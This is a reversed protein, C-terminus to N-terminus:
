QMIREIILDMLQKDTGDLQTFINEKLISLATMLTNLRDGQPGILEKMNHSVHDSIEKLDLVVQSILIDQNIEPHVGCLIAKGHGVACEIIAPMSADYEPIRLDKNLYTALVKVNKANRVMFHCGGNFYAKYTVDDWMISSVRAGKKSGYEYESLTPGIAAGDFFSLERKGLVEYGRKDDRHFDCYSAGYYAGACFGIYCGGNQVYNKIVSNGRGNLK